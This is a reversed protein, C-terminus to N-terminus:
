CRRIADINSNAILLDGDRRGLAMRHKDNPGVLLGLCRVLEAPADIPSTNHPALRRSLPPSIRVTINTATIHPEANSDPQTVLPPGNTNPFALVKPADIEAVAGSWPPVRVTPYRDALIAMTGTTTTSPSPRAILVTALILSLVWPTASSAYEVNACKSAFEAKVPLTHRPSVKAVPSAACFTAWFRAFIHGYNNARLRYKARWTRISSRIGNM